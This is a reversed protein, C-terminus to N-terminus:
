GAHIGQEREAPAEDAPVPPYWAGLDLLQTADADPEDGPGSRADREPRRGHIM